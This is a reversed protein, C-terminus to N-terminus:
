SEPSNLPFDRSVASRRRGEPNFAPFSSTAPPPLHALNSAESNRFADPAAKRSSLDLPARLM